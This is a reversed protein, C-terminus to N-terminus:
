FAMRYDSNDLSIHNVDSNILGATDLKIIWNTKEENYIYIDGIQLTNELTKILDNVTISNKNVKRSTLTIVITRKELDLKDVNIREPTIDFKHSINQIVMNKIYHENTDQQNNPNKKFNFIISKSNDLMDIDSQTFERILVLGDNKPPVYKNNASLLNLSNIWISQPNAENVNNWLLTNTSESLTDLYDVPICAIMQENRPELKGKNVVQGLFCYNDPATPNWVSYASNSKNSISIIPNSGYNIPFKCFSKHVVVTEIINNPDTENKIIIDGLSYFNTPPIPRWVSFDKGLKKDKYTFIKKYSLCFKIYLKKKVDFLNKNLVKINKLNEFENLNNRNNCVYGSSDHISWIEYGKDHKMSSNEIIMQKIDSNILYKNNVMRIMYKSPIDKSYVNGLSSYDKNSSFPTWIGFNNNTISVINYGDPKISVGNDNNILLAFDKPYKKKKTIYHFVPYHGDISIAEWVTYKTNSYVKKFQNTKKIFIKKSYLSTDKNKNDKNVKDSTGSYFTEVLHTPITITINSIGSFSIKKRLIIIFLIVLIILIISSYEIM